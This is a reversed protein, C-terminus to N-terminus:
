RDFQLLPNSAQGLVRSVGRAQALVGAAVAVRPRDRRARSLAQDLTLTDSGQVAAALALLLLPTTETLERRPIPPGCGAGGASATEM